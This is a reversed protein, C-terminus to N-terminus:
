FQESQQTRLLKSKKEYKKEFKKKSVFKRLLFYTKKTSTNSASQM